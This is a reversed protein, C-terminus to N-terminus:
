ITCAGYIASHKGLIQNNGESESPRVFWIQVIKLKKESTYWSIIKQKEM